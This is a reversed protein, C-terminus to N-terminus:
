SAPAPPPGPSPAPGRPARPGRPRRVPPAAFAVPQGRLAAVSGRRRAELREVLAPPADPRASVFAILQARDNLHGLRTQWRRLAPVDPASRIGAVVARAEVAYRWRKLALRAAHLPESGGAALAAILPELAAVRLGDVRRAAKRAARATRVRKLRGAAREVRAELKALWTRPLKARPAPTAALEAAWAERLPAPVLAAGASGHRLVAALVQAERAPTARRRLDRALRRAQDAAGGGGWVRPSAELPRCPGRLDHLAGAEDRAVARAERKIARALSRWSAAVAKVDDPERAEEHPPAHRERVARGRHRGRG